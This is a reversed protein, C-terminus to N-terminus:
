KLRQNSVNPLFSVWKVRIPTIWLLDEIRKCADAQAKKYHIWKKNAQLLSFLPAGSFGGPSCLSCEHFLLGNPSWDANCHCIRAGSLGALMKFKHCLFITKHYIATIGSHSFQWRKLNINLTAGYLVSKLNNDKTQSKSGVKLHLCCKNDNDCLVLRRAETHVTFQTVHRRGISPKSASWPDM